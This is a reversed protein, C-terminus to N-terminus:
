APPTPHPDFRYNMAGVLVVARVAHVEGSKVRFLDNNSSSSSCALLSGAFLDRAPLRSSHDHSYSVGLIAVDVL